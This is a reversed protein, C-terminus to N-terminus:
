LQWKFLIMEGSNIKKFNIEFYRTGSDARKILREIKRTSNTMDILECKVEKIMNSSIEVKLYNVEISFGMLYENAPDGWKYEIWISKEENPRIGKSLSLLIKKIKPEDQVFHHTISFNGDDSGAKFNLKDKGIPNDGYIMVLFYYLPVDTPNRIKYHFKHSYIYGKNFDDGLIIHLGIIEYRNKLEPIKNIFFRKGDISKSEVFGESILQNISNRISQYSLKYYNLDEMLRARLEKITFIRVNFGEGSLIDLIINRLLSKKMNRNQSEIPIFHVSTNHIIKKYRYKKGYKNKTWTYICTGVEGCIECKEIKAM